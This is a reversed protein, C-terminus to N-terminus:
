KNPSIQISVFDFKTVDANLALPLHSAVALADDNNTNRNSNLSSATSGWFSPRGLWNSRVLTTANCKMVDVPCELILSTLPCFTIKIVVVQTDMMLLWPSLLSLDRAMREGCVTLWCCRKELVISTRPRPESGTMHRTVM